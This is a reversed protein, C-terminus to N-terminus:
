PSLDIDPLLRGRRHRLGKGGGGGGPGRTTGAPVGLGGRAEGRAGLDLDGARRLAGGVWERGAAEEQSVQASVARGRRELQALLEFPRDRLSKLEPEPPTSAETM